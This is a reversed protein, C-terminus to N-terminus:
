DENKANSRREQRARRRKVMWWGAGGLGFVAFAGRAVTAFAAELAGVTVGWFLQSMIAMFTNM